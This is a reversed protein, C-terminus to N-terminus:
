NFAAVLKGDISFAKRMAGDASVLYDSPAAGTRDVQVRALRGKLMTHRDRVAKADVAQRASERGLRSAPITFIVEGQADYGRIMRPAAVRAAGAAVAGRANFARVQATAM